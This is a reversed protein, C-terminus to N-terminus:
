YPRLIDLFSVPINRAIGYVFILVLMGWAWLTNFQLDNVSRGKFLMYILIFGACAFVPLLLILLNYRLAGAIDGSLLSTLARTGGCAPCYLGTYSYLGCGASAFFSKLLEGSVYLYVTVCIFLYLALLQLETKKLISYLTM